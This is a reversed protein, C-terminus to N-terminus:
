DALIRDAYYSMAACLFDALGLCYKDYFARFEPHEAYGQGLGRYSEATPHWFNDVWAYHRAIAAQVAPDSPQKDMLDALQQAMAGGENKVAQWQAKSMNRVRRNSEAVIKPDYRENAERTYREIQEPTFGAYLEEDTMPTTTMHDETLRSITKEITNLLRGLRDAEQQLLRRHDHLAQVQDFGPQDLIAQIDTLPFDLERFFLIQQLRLLDAEGYQRYGATTRASPKLLGEHDYHHLTRVSVGAWRALQQGTYTHRTSM